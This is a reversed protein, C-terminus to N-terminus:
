TGRAIRNPHRFTGRPEVVQHVARDLEIACVDFVEDDQSRVAMGCIVERDHGVIDLHPDRMDHPAVIVDRVRGLLEQEVLGELRRNGLEGVNRQDQAGSLFRNLLRWPAVETM